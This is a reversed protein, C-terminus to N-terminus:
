GLKRKLLENVVAPNARGKVARMVQGVFFGFVQTKGAKYKQVEGPNKAIVEDVLKELEGADSVQTLGKRSIIKGPDEGTRFMEAFVEKGSNPSIEGRDVFNLLALFQEPTFKLTSVLGGEEKLLRMLEGLFWNALKKYDRYNRACREFYDALSVEGCLIKAEYSSLGYESQLRSLKARPLEPLTAAAQQILAESVHLPPLDPEPFYRYDHAEEKSRMPRTENKQVDWLRTELVVSGGSEIVEVQRAIEFDIAQRVFRFSNMNKLETRQGLTTSGKRMVSVNADCRFSGEEMNGDNVGIYVLIDRLAKLYEAAEESSSLDPETVIELLPVGARNLDVLSRGAAPDHVNKGADEEMHIRRIRVEKEGSSTDIKLKGFECIPRDYQTIQYGKPLDPYFYNKRSWVSTRRITCSLALGTRVAFEVVRRNLVPLVGPLGLCVPCTNHNPEAGFQTSCGCFIKSRTLLQAHVELGIVPQFDGAPMM